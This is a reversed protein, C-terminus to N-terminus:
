QAPKKPLLEVAAIFGQGSSARAAGTSIGVLNGSTDILPSGQMISSEAVNTDIIAVKSETLLATVLGNAIRAVTKGSLAVASAGLVPKDTAISVPKWQIPKALDATTTTSVNLYAIGLEADRRTVFVRVRTSDPLVVSAEPREDLSASDAAITGSADIVVGLGLFAPEEASTYVRVLSPSVREVAKAIQESETVVVTKEKTVITTAAAATQGEPAPVVTEVTKEIVRNVTAAVIPPAQDMLSVTVIGTAISTVFSVLLTLLVIQSKTLHEMDMVRM